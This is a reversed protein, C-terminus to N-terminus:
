IFSHIFLSSINTISELINDTFKMEWVEYVKANDSPTGDPGGGWGTSPWPTLVPSSQRTRTVQATHPKGIALLGHYWPHDLFCRGFEDSLGVPGSSMPPYTSHSSRPVFCLIYFPSVLGSQSGPAIGLAMPVHEHATQLLSRYNQQTSSSATLTVQNLDIMVQLGETLLM